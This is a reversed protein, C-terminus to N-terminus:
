QFCSTSCMKSMRVKRMVRKRTSRGLWLYKARQASRPATKIIILVNRTCQAACRSWLRLKVERLQATGHPPLSGCPGKKRCFLEGERLFSGCNNTESFFCEGQILPPRFPGGNAFRPRLPRKWLSVCPRQLLSWGADLLSALTKHM